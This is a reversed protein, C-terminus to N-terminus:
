ERVRFCVFERFLSLRSTLLKGDRFIHIIRDNDAYVAFHTSNRFTMLIIDGVKLEEKSITDFHKYSEEIAVKNIEERTIKYKPLSPYLFQVPFFCGQYTGDENYEQYPKGILGLLDDIKAM